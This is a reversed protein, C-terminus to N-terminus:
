VYKIKIKKKKADFFKILVDDVADSHRGQQILSNKLNILSQIIYTYEKENLYIQFEKHRM